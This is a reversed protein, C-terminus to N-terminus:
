FSRRNREFSIFSKQEFGYDTTAIMIIKITKIDSINNGQIHLFKSLAVGSIKTQTKINKIHFYGLVM